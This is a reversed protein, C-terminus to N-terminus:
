NHHERNVFCAKFTTLIGNQILVKKPKHIGHGFETTATKRNKHITHVLWKKGGWIQSIQEKPRLKRTSWLNFCHSFGQNPQWTSFSVNRFYGKLQGQIYNNEFFFDIVLKLCMYSTYPLTVKTLCKLDTTQFAEYM